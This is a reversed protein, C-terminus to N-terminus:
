HLTRDGNGGRGGEVVRLHGRGGRRRGRWRRWLARPRLHPGFMWLGVLLGTWHGVLSIPAGAVVRLLDIVVVAVLLHWGRARFFFFNLWSSWAIACIAGILGSIAGSAGVTPVLRPDALVAWRMADGALVAVGSLLGAVLVTRLLRRGGVAAELLTGFFYLTVLNFLLHSWGDMSHLLMSTLPQWLAGSLLTPLYLGFWREVSANWELAGMGLAAGVLVQILFAGGLVGMLRKVVPTLPPLSFRVQGQM